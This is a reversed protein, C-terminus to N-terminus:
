IYMENKVDNDKCILYYEYIIKNTQSPGICKNTNFDWIYWDLKGDNGYYILYKNSTIKFKNIDFKWLSLPLPAVVIKMYPINLKLHIYLKNILNM